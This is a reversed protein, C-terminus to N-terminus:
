NRRSYRGSYPRFTDEVEASYPRIAERDTAEFEAVYYAPSAKAAGAPAAHAALPLAAAAVAAFASLFLKTM